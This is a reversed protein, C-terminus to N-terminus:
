GRGGALRGHLGRAQLSLPESIPATNAPFASIIPKWTGPHPGRGPTETDGKGPHREVPGEM